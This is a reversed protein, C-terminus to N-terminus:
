SIQEESSGRKKIFYYVGYGIIGLSLLVALSIKKHTKIYNVAGKISGKENENMNVVEPKAEPSAEKGLVDGEIAEEGLVQGGSLNANTVPIAGGETTTTTTTTSTTVGSDGTPGSANGASNFARVVYYYNKNCDPVAETFSGEANPGISIDAVRTSGDLNINTSESRYVEVRSTQGDDATKFSIKYQCSSIKEKRYNTPVSPDRDDYGVAVLGQAESDDSDVGNTATAKFYYTQGSTNVISGTVQCSDTNGGALIAKDTDFQTWGDALNKKYFCKATIPTGSDTLDLVTFIIKFDTNKTPTKPESVRISLNAAYTSQVGILLTGILLLLTVLVTKRKKNMLGFLMILLGLGALISAFILWIKNGGTAPLVRTTSAGLVEGQLSTKGGETINGNVRVATGSFNTDVFGETQALALVKNELTDTGSAWAIDKYLGFEQAGDIKAQYKIVIEDDVNMDGLNYTGPSAYLPDGVTGTIDDVGNRIISIVNQFSFGKPLLDKVKVGLVKSNLAKVKLTYIVTGGQSKEVGDNLKSIQLEPNVQQNGVECNVTEGASVSVSHENSTDNGESRENSCDINTLTWGVVEPESLVYSGSLLNDFTADGLADTTENASFDEGQSLHMDWGELTPEGEDRVGDGDNDQYKTVVIKGKQTNTFTCTITEGPDLVLSDASEEDDQNSVCDVTTTYLENSEESVAYTDAPLENYTSSEEDGLEVGITEILDGTISFNFTADSDPVVDKEIIITGQGQNGIYCTVGEGAALEFPHSNSDDIGEEDGCAINTQVWGSKIQESLTFSNPLLDSFTVQGAVQDGTWQYADVDTGVLHIEWRTAEIESGVGTDGLVEDGDDKIGNANHDNYKVVTVNGLETNVFTHSYTNGSEVTGFDHTTDTLNQWDGRTEESVGYTGPGLDTWTYCGDRGTVQADDIVVEDKILNVEWESVNTRGDETEFDGDPDAQKCATVTVNQFNSFNQDEVLDGVGLVTASPSATQTWGSILDETLSYNGSLLNMFSFYGSDDTLQSDFPSDNFFLNIMWNSLGLEGLDWLGNGDLDGWKYGSISGRQTNTFTCIVTEGPGVDLSAPTEDKDCVGGDSDWGEVDGESVAYSGPVVEQNNPIALDTLSFSTYGSGTATFDFSQESETPATVKNVVIHGKRTNTITCSKNEGAALTVEGEANCDGTIVSTYHSLDTGSGGTESVTHDGITVEIQGNTWGGCITDSTVNSDDIQLNFLGTDGAPDCVKYISLTPQIDDNTITCSKVDGVSLTISGNSSCDGTISSTYGPDSTESVTYTGANYGHQAGSKVSTSDVFLPFDTVEKTGGNDNIVVKTVTLKPQVDTNTITCSKNDGPLLSISGAANCDGTFYGGTYGTQQTETLTYLFNALLTNPAGSTVSNGNVFLPFDTASLTGGYNNTVLKTFTLTPAIDDNTITCTKNDGAALSVNGNADCDGSITGIYGSDPTESVVHSSLSFTNAVGSTVSASDVFLPFNNVVKTGGNDNTVVKTVTLTANKTNTFTCTVNEGASLEIASVPSGDSCVASTQTWGSVPDESVAYTGAALTSFTTSNSLTPDADDDLSFGSLGTGTTTFSFDQSDNPVADKIITLSANNIRTNTITCVIDDEDDVNVTLPGTDSSSAVTIGTGNLDKCVISTTYNSLTTGTGATEGVTHNADSVVKEGTTGDNGVDPAETTSDIQLNFLGTDDSPDLVKVVELKGTNARFVICDSPDSNPSQSPYSCVDLLIANSVDALAVSCAAVTDSGSDFPNTGGQVSATCSTGASPIVPVSGFCRNASTDNCSYLNYASLIAPNGSVTVCLAFEALGNGDTDFLSCADGTNSGPWSIDDWNWTVDIDSPLGSYDVSMKTLDKQGPEDNAGGSDVTTGSVPADTFSVSALVFGFSDKLEVLYNPRYNGDLQYSYTFSGDADTTISYSSDVAPEDSSTVRLTYETNPSFAHGSIVAVDTPAYDPKDTVLCGNLSDARCEYSEVLNTEVVGNILPTSLVETTPTPEPPSPSNTVELPNPTPTSDQVSQLPLEVVTSDTSDTPTPQVPTETPSIEVTPEVTVEPTVEVTPEATPEVTVEPTVEVTPTVTETPTVVPELTPTIEEQAGVPNLTPVILLYPSFSNVLLLVTSLVSVFKRLFKRKIRM